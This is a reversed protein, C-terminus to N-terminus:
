VVTSCPLAGAPPQTALARHARETGLSQGQRLGTIDGLESQIINEVYQLMSIGEAKEPIRYIRINNHRSRRELDTVKAQISKQNILLQILTDKICTDGRGTM